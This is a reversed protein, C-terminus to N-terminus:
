SRVENLFELVVKSARKPDLLWGYPYVWGDIAEIRAKSPLESLREMATKMQTNQMEEEGPLMLVPCKVRRYYDEFRTEFYHGLYEEIAWSPWSCYTFSGNNVENVSYEILARFNENWWGQKEYEQKQAAVLVDFPAYVPNSTPGAKAIQCAVYEKFEIETGEWIGFPGYESYLAGACVLSTVKQPHNAALSLGVEAGLSSGIVHAKDLQLYDMVGVVDDAMDDIHYGKRPRDSKGHGRLDVLVLHYDNRFYPVVGQWMKLNGGGFHLFVITEGERRYERVQLEIEGVNIRLDQM